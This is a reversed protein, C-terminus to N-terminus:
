PMGEEDDAAAAALMQAIRDREEGTLVKNRVEVRIRPTPEVMEPKEASDPLELWTWIRLAAGPHTEKKDLDEPSFTAIHEQGGPVEWVRATVEGNEAVEEVRGLYVAPSQPASECMEEPILAGGQQATLELGVAFRAPRLLPRPLRLSLSREEDEGSPSSIWRRPRFRRHRAFRSQVPNGSM